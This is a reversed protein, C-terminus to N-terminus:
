LEPLRGPLSSHWTNDLDFSLFETCAELERLRERSILASVVEKRGSLDSQTGKMFCYQLSKYRSAAEDYSAKVHSGVVLTRLKSCWGQADMYHFFDNAFM